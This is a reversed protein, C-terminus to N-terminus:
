DLAALIRVLPFGVLLWYLTALVTLGLFRPVWTAYSLREILTPTAAQM